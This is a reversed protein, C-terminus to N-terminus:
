KRLRIKTFLSIIFFFFFSQVPVGTFATNNQSEVLDM